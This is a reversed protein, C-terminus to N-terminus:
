SAGNSLNGITVLVNVVAKEQMLLSAHYPSGIPAHDLRDQIIERLEILQPERDRDYLADACAGKGDGGACHVLTDAGGYECPGRKACGGALTERWQVQGKAAASSLKKRDDTSVINLIQAKRGEGYPSVFRPTLLRSIEKGLVEYMAKVYTAYAVDNLKVRSYGRGYYLSMARSTHKLQYQLSADSVLSSAQMNVAGTRRLQHWALPWPKGLQIDEGLTPTLLRAYELDNETVVLQTPDLLFKYSKLISGYSPYSPRVAFDRELGSGRAWPEYQRINFWPNIQQEKPVRTGISEVATALRLRVVHTMVQVAIEASSSTVWRADIDHIRKTTVGGLTYIKGFQLDHEVNLCKERLKWVEDVRMLSMNLLYANGVKTALSMFSGLSSIAIKNDPADIGVIWKRISGDIGHKIAYDVFPGFHKSFGAEKENSPQYNEQHRAFLYGFKERYLALCEEYCAAVGKSCALYDDLFERLRSVQYLWIRPPIYATQSGEHKSIAASFRRLADRDLIVHGFEKRHEYLNHFLILAPEAHSSSFCSPIEDLIEDHKYLELPNIKKASCLKLLPTIHTFRSKLTGANTVPRPGWLWWACILRASESCDKSLETGSSTSGFDLRLRRAAWVDLIWVSDGYRSIVRGLTDIVVPFDPAPPWTPPRYNESEAHIFPLDIGLSLRVQTTM